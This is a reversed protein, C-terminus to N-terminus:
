WLECEWEIRKHALTMKSGGECSFSTVGYGHAEKKGQRGCEKCYKGLSKILKLRLWPNLKAAERGMRFVDEM